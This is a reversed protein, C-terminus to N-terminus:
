ENYAYVSVSGTINGATAIVTGSDYASAVDHFTVSQHFQIAATSLGDLPAFIIGQTRVASAPNQLEFIHNTEGTTGIYGGAAYFFTASNRIGSITTNNANISQQKYDNGSADTSASRLRFNIDAGTSSTAKIIIRYRKYTTTFTNAPLSVSSVGSVCVLNISLQM